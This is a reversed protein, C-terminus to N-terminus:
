LINIDMVYLSCFQVWLYCHWLLMKFEHNQADHNLTLLLDLEIFCYAPWPPLFYHYWYWSKYWLYCICNKTSRIIPAHCGFCTSHSQLLYIDAYQQMSNSRKNVNLWLLLQNKLSSTYLNDRIITCLCRFMYSIHMLHIYKISVTWKTPILFIDSTM